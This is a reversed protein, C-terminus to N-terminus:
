FNHKTFNYAKGEAVLYGSSRKEYCSLEYLEVDQDEEEAYCYYHGDSDEDRYWYLM